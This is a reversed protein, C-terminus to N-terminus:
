SSSCGLPGMRPGRREGSGSARPAARGHGVCTAARGSTHSAGAGASGEGAWLTQCLLLRLGPHPAAAVCLMARCTGPGAPVGLGAARRRDRLQRGDGGVAATGRCPAGCSSKWIDPLWLQQFLLRNRHFRSLQQKKRLHHSTFGRLVACDRSRPVAPSSSRRHHCKPLLSLLQGLPPRAAQAHSDCGAGGGQKRRPQLAGERTPRRGACVEVRQTRQLLPLEM